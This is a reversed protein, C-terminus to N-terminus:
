DDKREWDGCGDDIQKTEQLDTCYVFFGQLGEDGPYDTEKSFKCSGCLGNDDVQGEHFTM